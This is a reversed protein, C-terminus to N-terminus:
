RWWTLAWSSSARALGRCAWLLDASTMGPEPTSWTRRSPPRARRRRDLRLRPRAWHRSRRRRSPARIGRELVDRMFLSTIGSASGPSSRRGPGTAACGSRCTARATSTARNSSATCRRATPVEVGFLSERHGRPRRLPDPRPPRHAERGGPHGTRRDLPRRSSWRYPAPTSSTASPGSSRRTRAAPDSPVVAADGFDVAKVHELPEIEADLHRGLWGGAARIERPGFRAGPRGSTLEDM